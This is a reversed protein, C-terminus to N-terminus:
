RATPAPGRLEETIKAIAGQIDDSSKVAFYHGGSQEALYKLRGAGKVEEEPHARSRDPEFIGISYIPVAVDRVANAIEGETYYSSDNGGDSIVLLAKRPNRGKRVEDLAFYVADWLASGGRPQALSEFDAQIKGSDTTLTSTLNPEDNFKVVCFEDQPNAQVLKAAFQRADGL